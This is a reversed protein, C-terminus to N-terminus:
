LEGLDPLPGMTSDWPMLSLVNLQILGQHADTIRCKRECLIKGSSSLRLQFSMEFRVDDPDTIAASCIEDCRLLWIEATKRTLGLKLHLGIIAFQADMARASYVSLHFRHGDTASGKTGELRASARLVRGDWEIRNIHWSEHRRDASLYSSSIPEYESPQVTRAMPKSNMLESMRM